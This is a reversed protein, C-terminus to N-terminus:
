KKLFIFVIAPYFKYHCGLSKCLLAHKLYMLGVYMIGSSSRKPACLVIMLSSIHTGQHEKLKLFPSSKYCGDINTHVSDCFELYIYLVSMGDISYNFTRTCVYLLTM